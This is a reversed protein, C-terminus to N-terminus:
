PRVVIRYWAPRTDPGDGDRRAGDRLIWNPQQNHVRRLDHHRAVGPWNAVYGCVDNTGDVIWVHPPATGVSTGRWQELITRRDQENVVSFKLRPGVVVLVLFRRGTEPRKCGARRRAISCRRWGAGLGRGVCM